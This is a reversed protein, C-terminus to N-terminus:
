VPRATRPPQAKNNGSTLRIFMLPSLTKYNSNFHHLNPLKGRGGNRCWVLSESPLKCTSEARPAGWRGMFMGAHRRARCAVRDNEFSNCKRRAERRNDCRSDRRMNNCQRTPRRTPTHVTVHNDRRDDHRM